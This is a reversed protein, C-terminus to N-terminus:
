GINNARSYKFLEHELNIGINPNDKLLRPLFVPLAYRAVSVHCGLTFRGTLESEHSLVGSRIFEWEQLLRKGRIALFKGAQTLQVGTKSRVLLQAGVSRELRKISMSLSPQTIGLREAARSVNLTATVELFYALDINSPLM